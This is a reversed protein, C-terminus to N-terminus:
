ETKEVLPFRMQTFPMPMQWQSDGPMVSELRKIFNRVNTTRLVKVPRKQNRFFDEWHGLLINKPRIARIIGEPYEKVQTFSAVCLIALDVRKLDNAPLDPVFGLPPTSAADQYHVRFAINGQENLFDILYAYTQGEVWGFVTRPLHKLDKDYPGEPLLKMGAFHPAHESEIAMFRITRDQNYIWQGPTKGKAAYTDVAIIRSKDVAAAMIHGMTKSGYVVANMAYKRMVYPVDLLHDYHSHGVLIMEVDEVPPLLLDVLEENTTLKTMSLIKLLGPNTISPATMLANKGHRFLYGGVGLYQVNITNKEEGQMQLTEQKTNYVPMRGISPVCGSFVINLSILIVFAHYRIKFRFEKM